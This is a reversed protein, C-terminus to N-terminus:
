RPSSRWVKFFGTDAVPELGRLGLALAIRMAAADDIAIVAITGTAREAFTGAFRVDLRPESRAASALALLDADDALVLVPGSGLAAAAAVAASPRFGEHFYQAGITNVPRAPPKLREDRIAAYLVLAVALGGVAHAVYKGSFRKLIAVGSVGTSAALLPLAPVIVRGYPAHRMLLFALVCLPLALLVGDVPEAPPRPEERRRLALFACTALAIVITTDELFLFRGWEGLVGLRTLGPQFASAHSALQPLVGVYAVFGALPAALFGGALRRPGRAAAWAGIALSPLLNTPLIGVAIAACAAFACLFAPRPTARWAAAAWLAGSVALWSPGYGRLQLAYNLTVHLSVFVVAALAGAAAGAARKVAAALVVASAAFCAAPLMRLFLMSEEGPSLKRWLALAASFLVHNNPAHYDTFAAKVSTAFVDLTYVEDHWPEDTFRRRALVLGALAPLLIPAWRALLSSRPAGAEATREEPM